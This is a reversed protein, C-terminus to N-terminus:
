SGLGLARAISRRAAARRAAHAPAPATATAGAVDRAAEDRRGGRHVARVEVAEGQRVGAEVHAARVVHEDDAVPAAHEVRGAAHLGGVVPVGHLERVVEPRVDLGDVVEGLLADRLLHYRPRCLVPRVVDQVHPVVEVPPPDEDLAAPGRGADDVRRPLPRPDELLHVVPRAQLVLLPQAHEPVVVEAPEQEGVAPVLGDPVGPGDTTCASVSPHRGGHVVARLHSVGVESHVVVEDVGVDEVGVVRNRILAVVDAGALVVKLLPRRATHLPWHGNLLARGPELPEPVRLEYPQVASESLGGAGPLDDHGVEGRLVAERVPLPQRRLMADVEDGRAVPVVLLHVVQLCVVGQRGGRVDDGASAPAYCGFACRISITSIVLVAEHVERECALLDHDLGDRM